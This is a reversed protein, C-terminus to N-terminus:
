FRLDARYNLAMQSGLCRYTMGPLRILIADGL